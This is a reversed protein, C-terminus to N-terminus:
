ASPGESELFERIHVAVDEAHTIAIDHDGGDIIRLSARPFLSALREGVAVPSIPDEDGFILLVPLDLARLEDSLDEIPDAIWPAAGPFARRYDPLWDIGGLGRAAVGVSAATLVLKRVRARQRLTALIAILGGMSQAILDSSAGLEREVLGVLDPLGTVQPSPPESGLGPWSLRIQPQGDELLSAVPRWFEASGSAGPLFLRSPAADEDGNRRNCSKDNHM